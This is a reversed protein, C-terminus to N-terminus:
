ADDFDELVEVPTDPDVWRNVQHLGGGTDLRVLRVRTSRATAENYMVAEYITRGGALRFSGDHGILDWARVVTVHSDSM